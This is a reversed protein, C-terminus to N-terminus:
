RDVGLEVGPARRGVVVIPDLCATRRTPTVRIHQRVEFARLVVLTEGVLKVAVASREAHGVGDARQGDAFGEKLGPLLQANREVRVEIARRM